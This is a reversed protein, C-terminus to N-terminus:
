MGLVFLRCPYWRLNADEYCQRRIACTHVPNLVEYVVVNEDNASNDHCIQCLLM